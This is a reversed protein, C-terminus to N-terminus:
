LVDRGLPFAFRYSLSFTRFAFGVEYVGNLSAQNGPDDAVSTEARIIFSPTALHLISCGRTQAARRM